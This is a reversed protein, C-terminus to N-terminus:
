EIIPENDIYYEIHNEAYYGDNYACYFDEYKKEINYNNGYLEKDTKILKELEEIARKKNKFIRHRREVDFDVCIEEYLVYVRKEM